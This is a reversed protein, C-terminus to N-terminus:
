QVFDHKGKMCKTAFLIVVYKICKLGEWLKNSL